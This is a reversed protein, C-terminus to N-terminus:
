TTPTVTGWFRCGSATWIAGAEVQVLPGGVTKDRGIATMHAAGTGANFGMGVNDGNIESSFVTTGKAVIGSGEFTSQGSSTELLVEVIGVSCSGTLKLGSGVPALPTEAGDNPLTTAFSTAGPGQPGTDGRAGQSGTDGKPGPQGTLGAPGPRGAKKLQARLAKSLDKSTITGNKIDKGTILRAATATGATALLLGLVFTLLPRRMM